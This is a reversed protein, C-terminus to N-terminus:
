MRPEDPAAMAGDVKFPFLLLIGAEVLNVVLWMVVAVVAGVHIVHMLLVGALCAALFSAIGSALVLGSQRDRIARGRLFSRFGLTLPLVPVFLLTTLTSELVAGTVGIWDRAIWTGLPTYAVLCLLACVAVTIRIAFDKVRREEESTGARAIVLQHFALLVSAVFWAISRVVSFSSVAVEGDATRALVANVVSAVSVGFIMSLLLPAVFRFMARYTLGIDGETDGELLSLRRLAGFLVILAEILVGLCFALAGLIAGHIELFAGAGFVLLAMGGLRALTAYGIVATRSVAALTGRGLSRVSLFLPLPSFVALCDASLRAMSPNLGFFGEFLLGALPTLSLGLIVAALGGGLIGVFVSVKRFSDRGKVMSIVAPEIGFSMSNFFVAVVFAVAFAALGEVPDPRRAIGANVIPTGGAVMINTLALPIYFSLLVGFRTSQGSTNM